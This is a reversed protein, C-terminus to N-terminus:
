CIRSVVVVVRLRAANQQGKEPRGPQLTPYRRATHDFLVAPELVRTNSRAGEASSLTGGREVSISSQRNEYVAAASANKQAVAPLGCGPVSYQACLGRLAPVPRALVFCTTLLVSLSSHFHTRVIYVVPDQISSCCNRRVKLVCRDVARVM